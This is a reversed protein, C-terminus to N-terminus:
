PTQGPGRPAEAIPRMGDRLEDTRDVRRPARYPRPMDRDPPFKLTAGLLINNQVFSLPLPPTRAGSRQDVHEYRVGVQLIKTAQWGLSIDALLVTVRTTLDANEDLLHGNQYGCSAALALENEELLPLTGRLRVEDVLLSQGLLANTALTHGYTLQADGDETAYALAALGIPTWARGETNLRMVRLAGAEVSSSLEPTWDHRWLGVGGTTLQRQVELREGNVSVGNRIVTYDVRAEAGVADALFSREVGVRTAVGATTPTEAGSLPTDFVASGSQWARWAEAVDFSFAEDASAQLFSGTGAPVAGVTGAGPAAFAVSAFRDSQTAAAGLVLNVRPSLDFFGRYDLRNSSSSTTGRNFYLDYEYRYGVHQLARPSELALVLGPSLMWFLSRARTTEGDESRPVAQANDTYGLSSQGVAQVQPQVAGAVSAGLAVAGFVGLTLARGTM